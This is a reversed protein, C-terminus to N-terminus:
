TELTGREARERLGQLMKREMVYSAPILLLEVGLRALLPRERTRMRTRSLLRTGEATPELV